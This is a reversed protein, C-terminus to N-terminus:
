KLISTVNHNGGVSMFNHFHSSMDVGTKLGINYGEHKYVKKHSEEQAKKRAQEEQRKKM